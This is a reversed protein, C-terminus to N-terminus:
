QEVTKYTTNKVYVPLVVCIDSSTEWIYPSQEDNIAM